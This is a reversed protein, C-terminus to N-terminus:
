SANSLEVTRLGCDVTWLRSLVGREKIFIKQLEVDEQLKKAIDRCYTDNKQIEQLQRPKLPSKIEKITEHETIKFANGRQSKQLLESSESVDLLKM